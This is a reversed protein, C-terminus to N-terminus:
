SAVVANQVNLIHALPVVGQLVLEVLWEVLIDLADLPVWSHLMVEHQRSLASVQDAEISAFECLWNEADLGMLLGAGGGTEAGVNAVHDCGNSGILVALDPIHVV